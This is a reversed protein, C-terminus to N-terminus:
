PSPNIGTFYNEVLSQMQQPLEQRGLSKKAEAAYEKYVEEYPRSAGDVAPATGGKQITGGQGKLPGKDNQKNGSGEFKRPTMVLDRGGAGLGAGSGGSGSGGSGRGNGSGNESGAGSGSGSGNGSGAGSGQTGSSGPSSSPDGDPEAGGAEEGLALEEASGGSSWTDSVPMGAAAMQTSLGLGQSALKSSMASAAASQSSAAARAALAKALASELDNLAEEKEKDGTGETLAKQTKKLADALAKTEPEKGAEEALKDLAERLKQKQEPTLQKVQKKFSEMAKKLDEPKGEALSKGLSAMQPANQMKKGLESLNQVAADQKAAMKEMDKMTKELEALAKEPDKQAALNKQLTKLSNELPKNVAPDLKQAQLQSVLQETQQKQDQVWEKHRKAEALKEDAPNPLVSLVGAAVLLIAATAAIKKYSPYPLRKKLQAAFSNGYAEAQTRQWRAAASDEGAFALATVMMDSREAGGTATDMAQAAEQERVRHLAGWLAGGLLGAGITGLALFRYEAIPWLRAALLLVIACGLGAAVGYCAFRILRFMQLRSRTKAVASRIADM